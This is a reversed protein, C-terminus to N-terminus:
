VAQLKKSREVMEQQDKNAQHAVQTFIRLKEEESAHLLFDSLEDNAKSKNVQKKWFFPFNM